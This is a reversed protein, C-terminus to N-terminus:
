ALPASKDDYIRINTRPTTIFPKRASKLTFKNRQNNPIMGSSSSIQLLSLNKM